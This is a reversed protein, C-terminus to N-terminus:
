SGSLVFADYYVAIGALLVFLPVSVVLWARERRAYEAPSRHGSVRRWALGNGRKGFWSMAALTVVSAIIAPPVTFGSPHQVAARVTSDLFLWLPLFIAGAWQGHAPGWVPPVLFASLNFRPLSPLEQGPALVIRGAVAAAPHGALCDGNSAREVIRDCYACYGASRVTIRASEVGEIPADTVNEGM